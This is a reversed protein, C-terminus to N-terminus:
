RQIQDIKSQINELQNYFNTLESHTFNLSLKSDNLHFNLEALPLKPQSQCSQDALLKLKWNIDELTQHNSNNSKRKIADVLRPANTKWLEVIVSAKETSLGIELLCRGLVKPKVLFKSINSLLNLLCNLLDDDFNALSKWLHWYKDYLDCHNVFVKSSVSKEVYVDFIENLLKEFIEM